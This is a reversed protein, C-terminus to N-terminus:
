LYKEVLSKFDNGLQIPLPHDSDIHNPGKTNEQFKSKSPPYGFFHKFSKTFYSISNYGTLDAAESVTLDDNVLHSRAKLLRVQNTYQNITTGTIEKFIRCMHYKSIAVHQAMTDLNFTIHYNSHIYEIALKTTDINNFQVKTEQNVDTNRFEVQNRDLLIIMTHCLARVAKKYHPKNLLSEKVIIEYINKIEPDASMTAYKTNITDFGLDSCFRHDIILCYYNAEPTYPMIMHISNSNIVVIDGRAAYNVIGDIEVKIIGVTVFLIEINRHWHHRIYNSNQKLYNYHFIIPYDPNQFYHLEYQLNKM